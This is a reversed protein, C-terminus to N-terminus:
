DKRYSVAGQCSKHLVSPIPFPHTAKINHGHFYIESFVMSSPLSTNRLFMDCVVLFCSRKEMSLCLIELKLFTTLLEKTSLSTQHHTGMHNDLSYFLETPCVKLFFSFLKMAKYPVKHQETPM